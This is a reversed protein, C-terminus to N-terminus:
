GNIEHCLYHYDRSNFFFIMKNSRNKIVFQKMPGDFLLMGAMGRMSNWKACFSCFQGNRLLSGDM